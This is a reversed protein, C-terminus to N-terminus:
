CPSRRADAEQQGTDIMTGRDTRYLDARLEVLVERRSLFHRAVLAHLFSPRSCVALLGAPEPWRARSRDVRAIARAFRGHRVDNRELAFSRCVLM